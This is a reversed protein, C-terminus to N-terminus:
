PRADLLRQQEELFEPWESEPVYKEEGNLFIVSHGGPKLAEGNHGLGVKDWIIAIRPDDNKTLGEVYHWGCTEPGLLDGRNLITEVEDLPVTKGRLLNADCLKERYLLSLSAEPCAEGAPFRGGQADAYQLLTMNLMKSCCHSWGYPYKPMSLYVWVGFVAAVAALLVVTTLCGPVRQIDLDDAPDAPARM